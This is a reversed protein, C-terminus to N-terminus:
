VLRFGGTPEAAQGQGTSEPVIMDDYRPDDTVDDYAYANKEPLAHLKGPDLDALYIPTRVGGVDIWGLVAKPRGYIFVLESVRSFVLEGMRHRHLVKLRYRGAERNIM